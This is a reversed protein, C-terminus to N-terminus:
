LLSEYQARLVAMEAEFENHEKKLMELSEKEAEEYNDYFFGSAGSSDSSISAMFVKKLNFNEIGEIVYAKFIGMEGVKTNNLIDRIWSGGHIQAM